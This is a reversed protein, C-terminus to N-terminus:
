GSASDLWECFERARWLRNFERDAVSQGDKFWQVIFHRGNRRIKRGRYEYTAFSVRKMGYRKNRLLFHPITELSM